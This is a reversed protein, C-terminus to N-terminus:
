QRTNAVALSKIAGAGQDITANGMQVIRKKQLERKDLIHWQACNKIYGQLSDNTDPESVEYSEAVEPSTFFRSLAGLNLPNQEIPLTILM